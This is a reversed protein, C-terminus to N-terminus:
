TGQAIQTSELFQEIQRVRHQSIHSYVSAQEDNDLKWYFNSKGLMYGSLPQTINNVGNLNIYKYECNAMAYFIWPMDQEGEYVYINLDSNITSKSLWESIQTQEEDTLHVFLISTNDNEFIDPPTILTIKGEVNCGQYFLM